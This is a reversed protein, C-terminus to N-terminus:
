AADRKGVRGFNEGREEQGGKVERDEGILSLRSVLKKKSFDKWGLGEREKLEDAKNSNKRVANTTSSSV